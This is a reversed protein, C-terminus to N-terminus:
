LDYWATQIHNTTKTRPNTPTNVVVVIEGLGAAVGQDGSDPERKMSDDGGM